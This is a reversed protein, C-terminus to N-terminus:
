LSTHDASFYLRDVWVISMTILATCTTWLSITCCWQDKGVCPSREEIKLSGESCPLPCRMQIVYIVCFDSYSTMNGTHVALRKFWVVSLVSISWLHRRNLIFKAGFSFIVNVFERETSFQIILIKEMVLRLFVHSFCSIRYM